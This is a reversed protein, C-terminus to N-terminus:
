RIKSYIRRIDELIETHSFDKHHVMNVQRVMSSNEVPIVALEGSQEAEKCASHAIISIGLDKAVLERIIAVNDIEVIVNFNKISESRSVLYNEFLQRTGAMPSRLIFREDRLESLSVSQRKAFRHMPSTILCLYDTDLLVSTFDPDSINGEVIAVDVEYTKLKTYINKITDTVFNIHTHPHDICYIAMVQPIISEGATPTIGVIFRKVAKRSDEIAQITSHYLAKARRAYKVLIEGELTLKLEKKGRLFISIQFEEELLRIHHSVAPQTLSLEAAAKTFSGTEVLKLLTELKSDLM